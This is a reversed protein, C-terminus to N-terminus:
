LSVFAVSCFMFDIADGDSLLYEQKTEIDLLGKFSGQQVVQAHNVMREIGTAVPLYRYRYVATNICVCIPMHFNIPLHVFWLVPSALQVHLLNM